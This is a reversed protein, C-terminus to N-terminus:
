QLQKVLDDLREVTGIDFWKGSYIEGYVQQKTMAENLLPRLPLRSIPQDAFFDPHYIGIGSYTFCNKGGNQMISDDLSFDGHPHHPPNNVLVLHALTDAALSLQSLKEFPYDTWIDGNVVLFPQKGLLPLANIIGGATELGGTAEPSYTINVGYRAGDGLIPEFQEGLHAYNIIIDDIGAAALNHILYEILRHQGVQLLPKPTHDTLPRLREGKGAALIMARM